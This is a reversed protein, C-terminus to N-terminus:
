LVYGLQLFGAWCTLLYSSLQERVEVYLGLYKHVKGCVCMGVYINLVLIGSGQSVDSHRAKSLCYQPRMSPTFTTSNKSSIGM